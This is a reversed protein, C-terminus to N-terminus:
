HLCYKMNNNVMLYNQINLIETKDVDSFDLLFDHENEKFSVKMFKNEDFKYAMSGLCFKSPFKVNKIIM